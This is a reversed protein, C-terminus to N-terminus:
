APAGVGEEEDLRRAVIVAATGAGLDAAGGAGAGAGDRALVVDVLGLAFFFGV